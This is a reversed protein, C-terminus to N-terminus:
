GKTEELDTVAAHSVSDTQALQVCRSMMQRVQKKVLEMEEASDGEGREGWDFLDLVKEETKLLTLSHAVARECGEAWGMRSWSPANAPPVLLPPIIAKMREARHLSNWVEETLLTYLVTQQLLHLMKNENYVGGVESSNMAALQIWLSTDVGVVLQWLEIFYQSLRAFSPSSSLSLAIVERHLLQLTLLLTSTM